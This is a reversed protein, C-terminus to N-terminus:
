FRNTRPFGDRGGKEIARVFDGQPKREVFGMANTYVGIDGALVLVDRDAVPVFDEQPTRHGPQGELHLGSDIQIKM